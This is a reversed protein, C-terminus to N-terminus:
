FKKFRTSFYRADSFGTMYAIEKVSFSGTLLLKAAYMMKHSMVFNKSSLGTVARIRRYLNSTSMNMKGALLSIDLSCDQMNNELYDIVRRMFQNEGAPLVNTKNQVQVTENETKGAILKIVDTINEVCQMVDRQVEPQGNMNASAQRLKDAIGALRQDVTESLSLSSLSFFTRGEQAAHIKRFHSM